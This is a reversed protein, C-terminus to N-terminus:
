LHRLVQDWTHLIRKVGDALHRCSLTAGSVNRIDQNLKLPAGVRKGHFQARWKPNRVEPGGYSERYTLIEIGKVAGNGTLAIAYDIFEHKGIVEDVIFWGGGGTKWAQLNSSRVRVGSAKQIASKQESTLTVDVKTGGGGLARQAQSITLFTEAKGEFVLAFGSAAAWALAEITTRRKM